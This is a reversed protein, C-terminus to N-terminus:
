DTVCDCGQQLLDYNLVLPNQTAVLNVHTVEKIFTIMLNLTAQFPGWVYVWM